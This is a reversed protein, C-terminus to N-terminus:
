LDTMIDMVSIMSVTSFYKLNMVNIATLWKKNTATLKAKCNAYKM